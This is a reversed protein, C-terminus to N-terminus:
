KKEKKPALTVMNEAVKDAELDALVRLIFAKHDALMGKRIHTIKNTELQSYLFEMILKDLLDSNTSDM